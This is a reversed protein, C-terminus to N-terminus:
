NVFGATGCAHLLERTMVTWTVQRVRSSSWSSKKSFESLGKLMVPSPFQVLVLWSM